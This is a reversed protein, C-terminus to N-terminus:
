LQFQHQFISNLFITDESIVIFICAFHKNNLFLGHTKKYKLIIKQRITKAIIANSPM